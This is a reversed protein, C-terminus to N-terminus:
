SFASIVADTMSVVEHFNYSNQEGVWVNWWKKGGAKFYKERLNWCAKIFHRKIYQLVKQVHKSYM